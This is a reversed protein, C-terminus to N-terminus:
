SEQFQKKPSQSLINNAAKKTVGVAAKHTKEYLKVGAFEGANSPFWILLLTIVTGFAAQMVSQQLESILHGGVVATQNHLLSFANLTSVFVTTVGAALLTTIALAGMQITLGFMVQAWRMFFSRTSEYLAAYVMLPCLAMGIRVMMENLMLMIGASIQPSVQSMLVLNFTTTALEPEDITHSLATVLNSTAFAADMLFLGLAAQQGAPASDGTLGELLMGRFAMLLDLPTRDTKIISMMFAVFVLHYMLKQLTMKGMGVSAVKGFMMLYVFYIFRMMEVGTAIAAVSAVFRLYAADMVENFGHRVFASILSFIPYSFTDM